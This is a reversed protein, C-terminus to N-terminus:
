DELPEPHPLGSFPALRRVFDARDAAPLLANAGYLFSISGPQWGYEKSDEAQATFRGDHDLSLDSITFWLWQGTEAELSGSVIVSQEPTAAGYAEVLDADTMYSADHDLTLSGYGHRAAVEAIIEL